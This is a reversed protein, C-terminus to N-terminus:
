FITSFSYSTSYYYDNNEDACDDKSYFEATHEFHNNPPAAADSALRNDRCYSSLSSTPKHVGLSETASRTVPIPYVVKSSGRSSLLDHKPSATSPQYPQSSYPNRNAYM